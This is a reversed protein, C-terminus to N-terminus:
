DVFWGRGWAGVSERRVWAVEHSKAAPRLASRSLISLIGKDIDDNFNENANPVFCYDHGPLDAMNFAFEALRKRKSNEM